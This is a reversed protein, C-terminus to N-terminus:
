NTTSLTDDRSILGFDKVILDVHLIMCTRKLSASVTRYYPLHRKINPKTTKHTKYSNTLTVLWWTVNDSTISM